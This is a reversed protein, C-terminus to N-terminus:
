TQLICIFLVIILWDTLFLGQMGLQLDVNEWGQGHEAM